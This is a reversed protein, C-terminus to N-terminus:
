RKGGQPRMLKKIEKAARKGAKGDLKYFLIRNWKRRNESFENRNKLAIPLVSKLEEFSDIRYSIENLMQFIENSLRKGPSIRFTIIPKDLSCFEAIISSTDSIMIDAMQLYKLIEHKIQYIDSYASVITQYKKSMKPHLTVLIHYKTKLENIRYIWKDIASIGSKNWTASFLLVPKETFGFEKKLIEQEPIEGNFLPDLKPFGIGVGNKIGVKRAEKEETPSTFLFKDFWNYKKENIMKKFHYAGHRMGIKIIKKEPFLHIPHRAMILKTPFVPWFTYKIGTTSVEQKLKRNKFIIIIDPLYKMVPKIIQFDLTNSCYFYINDDMKIFNKVKWAVRYPIYLLYYSLVM